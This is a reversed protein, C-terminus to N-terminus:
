SPPRRRPRLRWACLLSRAGDLGPRLAFTGAEHCRLSSIRAASKPELEDLAPLPHGYEAPFVVAAAMTASTPSIKCVAAIRATSRDSDRYLDLGPMHARSVGRHKGEDICAIGRQSLGRLGRNDRGVVRGDTKVSGSFRQSSGHEFVTAHLGGPVAGSTAADEFTTTCDSSASTCVRM